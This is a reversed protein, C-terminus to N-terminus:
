EVKIKLNEPLPSLNNNKMETFTDIGGSTKQQKRNQKATQM